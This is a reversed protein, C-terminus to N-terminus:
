RRAAHDPVEPDSPTAEDAFVLSGARYPKVAGGAEVLLEGGASIGRVVGAGPLEVARGKAV